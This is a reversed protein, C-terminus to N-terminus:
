TSNSMVLSAIGLATNFTAVNSGQLLVYGAGSITGANQSLTGGTAVLGLGTAVTITGTNTFSPTTGSQTVTLSGTTLDITGSNVHDASAKNLELGQTVTVTGQNNLEAAITRPGGSTGGLSKITAGA